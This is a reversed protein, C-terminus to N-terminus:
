DERHLVDQRYIGTYVPDRLACGATSGARMLETCKGCAVCCKKPDIGNGQLIDRAFGPCAFAERGFGAMDCGGREVMGAALAPSFQRLYSFGSGIVPTEPVAEKVRAVCDMM